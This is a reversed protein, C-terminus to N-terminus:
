RRRPEVVAGAVQPVVPTLRRGEDEARAARRLVAELEQLGVTRGEGARVLAATRVSARPTAAAAGVGAPVHASPTQLAGDRGAAQLLRVHEVDHVHAAGQLIQGQVRADPGTQGLLTQAKAHFPRAPFADHAFPAGDM